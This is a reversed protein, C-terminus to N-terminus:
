RRLEDNWELLERSVARGARLVARGLSILGEEGLHDQFGASFVIGVLHDGNLIPSGAAYVGRLYEGRDFALLETRVRELENGLAGVDGVSDITFRPLVQPVPVIEWALAIKGVVGALLPISRDQVAKVRFLGRGEVVSVIRFRDGIPVGFVSTQGMQEALEALYPQCIETLKRKGNRSRGLEEVLPGLRFRRQGADEIAGAALLSELLAHASSKGIGLARALATVGQPEKTQSLLRLIAFARNVAPAMKTNKRAFPDMIIFMYCLGGQQTLSFLLALVQMHFLM